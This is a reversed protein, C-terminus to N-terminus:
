DEMIIDVNEDVLDYPFNIDAGYQISSFIVTGNNNIIEICKKYKSSLFADDDDNKWDTGYELEFYNNLEEISNVINFNKILSNMLKYEMSKKDINIKTKFGIIYSTSSSNTIFDNKIKM